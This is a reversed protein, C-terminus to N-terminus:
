VNLVYFISSRTNCCGPKLGFLPFSFEIGKEGKVFIMNKELTIIM